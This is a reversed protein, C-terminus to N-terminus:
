REGLFQATEILTDTGHTIIYKKGKHDRILRFMLERDEDTIELSDKQCITIVEYEFSPQLTSMIRHAAPEGIEFAWGGTARPYDKDITGGTQIFTIKM